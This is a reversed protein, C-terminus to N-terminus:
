DSKRWETIAAYKGGVPDAKYIRWSDGGKHNSSSFTVPNSIGGMDYNRISELARIFQDENLKRGARKLGEIMVTAIAWGHAYITGRYPKETGPHYKLTIKRMKAVGPGEGYWPATSHVSYVQNAAEGIQNLEEGLMAGFTNFVPIKLGFKRMDRLLTVTTATFTGINLICNAKHKRLNMVQSTADLAGAMMIEKTVPTVNYKELRPLAARLDTKGAETDPYVLGVRPEGLKHDKLMYDVIVRTQGEYTDCVIFLYKKLPNIAIETFPASISPLKNKQIHKWLVFILSASSPGTFTFVKDRFVLKKFGALAAPISYRDDEVIIELHRGNVGGSDNIYKTYTRVAQTLQVLLSSAPGTQDMSVGIKISTGTVGRVEKAEGVSINIFLVIVLFAIMLLIKNKM